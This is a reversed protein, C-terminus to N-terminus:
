NTGPKLMNAISHCVATSRGAGTGQWNRPNFAVTGCVYGTTHSSPITITQTVSVTGGVKLNTATKDGGSPMIENAYTGAQTRAPNATTSYFYRPGYKFSTAVNPGANKVSSAFTVTSVTASKFTTTGTLGWPKPNVAAKAPVEYWRMNWAEPSCAYIIVPTGPLNKASAANLCGKYNNGANALQHKGGAQSGVWSWQQNKDGNSCTYFRALIQQGGKSQPVTQYAHNWDDLCLGQANKLQFNSSGPTPKAYLMNKNATTCTGISGGALCIGKNGNLTLEVYSPATSTAAHSAVLLGTGVIGVVVFCAVALLVHDFGYQNLKKIHFKMRSREEKTVFHNRVKFKLM